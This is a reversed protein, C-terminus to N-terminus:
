ALWVKDVMWSVLIHILMHLLFQCVCFIEQLVGEGRCITGSVDAVLLKKTFSHCTHTPVRVVDLLPTEFHEVEGRHNGIPFHDFDLCHFLELKVVLHVGWCPRSGLLFRFLIIRSGLANVLPDDIFYDTLSVVGDEILLL